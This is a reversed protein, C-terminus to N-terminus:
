QPLEIQFTAGQGEVSKATIRGGHAEVIQQAIALGLGFGGTQRARATDVRYFRDFIKPLDAAPIGIGDDEVQIIARRPQTFLRLHVTGGSPTYKFANDLLNRVAQQLLESDACLSV